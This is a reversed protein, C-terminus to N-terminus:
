GITMKRSYDSCHVNGPPPTIPNIDMFEVNEWASTNSQIHWHRLGNGDTGDYTWTGGSNQSGSPHRATWGAPHTTDPGLSVDSSLELRTVHRFGEPTYFETAHQHANASTQCTDSDATAQAAGIGLTAVAVFSLGVAMLGNRKNM